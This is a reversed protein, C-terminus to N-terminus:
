HNDQPSLGSSQPPDQPLATDMVLLSDRPAGSCLMGDLYPHLWGELQTKELM